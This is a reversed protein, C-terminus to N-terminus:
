KGIAANIIDFWTPDEVVDSAEADTANFSLDTGEVTVAMVADETPNLTKQAEDMVEGERSAM